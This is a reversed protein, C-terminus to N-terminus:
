NPLDQVFGPRLALAVAATRSNVGLKGLLNAIHTGATRPTIYLADAIRATSHGEVLLTLVESERPTLTYASAPIDDGLTSAAIAPQQPGAIERAIVIIRRTMAEIDLRGGREWAAAHEAEPLHERCADLIGDTDRQTAVAAEADLSVRNASAAGLLEVATAWRGSANCLSAIFEASELINLRDEVEAHLNVSEIMYAASEALNGEERALAAPGHLAIALLRRDGTERLLEIAETFLERVQSFDKRAFACGGLNILTIPLYDRADIQRQLALAHALHREAAESDGLDSMVAGLNTACLAEAQIDGLAAFQERSRELAIRAADLRGQFFAIDGLAKQAVAGRLQDGSQEAITAVRQHFGIATAYDGRDGHVFGLGSFARSEVEPNSGEALRVAEEFLAEAVALDRQREALFGATVLGELYVPTGAMSPDALARTVWDRCEALLGRNSCFQWTANAIRLTLVPHAHTLSWSAAARFNEVEPDLLAQWLRQEEAIPRSAVFEALGAAWEAHALRAANTEGAIELQELGYDRLTELIVFRPEDRDGPEPRVLSHDVLTSIVDFPDREGPGAAIMAEAAALSFGGSFVAMRRFAAQEDPTLLDHSWAIANRMTRLRDPADRRDGGLLRLRDSIRALLAEPSLFTTRAAALEIALPLGDLERCIAAVTGANAATIAFAPSAARARQAFLAVADSSLLVDTPELDPDPTPLPSLAYIQEGSIGLPARSTVLMTVRPCHMLLEALAPAAGLVQEMNDLVILAPHTGLLRVLGVEPADSFLGLEQAITPLVLAPDRIAALPVFAIADGFVDALDHALHLALRTKGVGGPGTITVLRTAPDDLAERLMEVDQDRGVMTTLVAPLPGNRTTAAIPVSM